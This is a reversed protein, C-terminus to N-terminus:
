KVAKIILYILGVLSAGTMGFVLLYIFIKGLLSQAPNKLEVEISNDPKVKTKIMPEKTKTQSSKKKNKM